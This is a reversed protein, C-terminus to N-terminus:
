CEQYLYILYKCDFKVLEFFNFVFVVVFWDFKLALYFLFKQCVLFVHWLETFLYFLNLLKRCQTVILLSFQLYFPFAFEELLICFTPLIDKFVNKYVVFICNEIVSLLKWYLNKVCSCQLLCTQGETYISWIYDRQSKQQISISRISCSGFLRVIINYRVFSM